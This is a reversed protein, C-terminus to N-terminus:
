QDRRMIYGAVRYGLKEARRVLGRRKTQFTAAGPAIQRLAADVAATQNAQGDGAAATVFVGGPGREIVFVVRGNAGSEVAFCEGRDCM